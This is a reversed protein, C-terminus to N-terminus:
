RNKKHWAPLGLKERGDFVNINKFQGNVNNYHLFVQGCNDGEFPERWHELKCGEYILMDGIELVVKNNELFIPWPDGGLNLTTSIECSPRDKHKKLEDGKKYMRAYSYTPVVDLGTEKKMVPLMKMLLTDFAPDGYISYTNPIQTDGWTGLMGNDYTMNTNYMHEVAERKLLFYNYLFNALEYNVAQKVVKYNGMSVM